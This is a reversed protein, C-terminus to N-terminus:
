YPRGWHGPRWYWGYPGQAWHGPHWVAGGYPPYVYHGRTWVYRYGNWTWYGPQWVYGTGPAVPVTEYIPAPPGVQVYAGGYVQAAAPLAVGCVAGGLACALLLSRLNMM